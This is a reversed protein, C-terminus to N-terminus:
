RNVRRFWKNAQDHNAPVCYGNYYFNGVNWIAEQNKKEAAMKYYEFAKCFDPELEETGNSYIYGLRVMSPVHEMDVAKNYWEIAKHIDVDVGEGNNYMDAIRVISFLHGFEAAKKLWEIKEVGDEKEQAVTAYVDALLFKVQEKKRDDDTLEALKKYYSIAKEIDPETGQGYHYFLGLKIYANYVGADAAMQYYKLAKKDNPYIEGQGFEFIQGLEYHAKPEGEESAKKMWKLYLSPVGIDRYVWALALAAKPHGSKAAKTYYKQALIEDPEVNDGHNYMYGLIYATEADGGGDRMQEVKMPVEEPKFAEVEGYNTGRMEEALSDLNVEAHAQGVWAIGLCLWSILM